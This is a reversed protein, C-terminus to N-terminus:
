GTPGWDGRGWRWRPRSLGAIPSKPPPVVTAISERSDASEDFWGALSGAYRCGRSFAGVALTNVHEVVCAQSDSVGSNPVAPGCFTFVLGSGCERGGSPLGSLCRTTGGGIEAPGAVGLAAGCARLGSAVGERVGSFAQQGAPREKQLIRRATARGRHHRSPDGGESRNPLPRRPIGGPIGAAPLEAPGTTM